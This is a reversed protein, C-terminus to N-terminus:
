FVQIAHKRIEPAFKFQMVELKSWFDHLELKSWFDSLM